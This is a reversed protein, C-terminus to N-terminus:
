VSKAKELRNKVLECLSWYVENREDKSLRLADFFVEDLAKRDPLPKPTQSRIKRPNVGLEEFISLVKRQGLKKLLGTTKDQSIQSEQILQIYKYDPGYTTLIGEAQNVRGMIEIQFFFWTSNLQAKGIEDSGKFKGYFFNDSCYTEISTVPTWFRKDWFRFIIFDVKEGKLSYWYPSNSKVTTIRNVRNKEGWKIYSLAGSGELSEKSEDCFFIRNAENIFIKELQRSSNIVPKIYKNEIKFKSIIDDELYFFSVAGTTIGRKITLAKSFPTLENSHQSVIKWYIDPARLFKAGWKNGGYGGVSMDSNDILQQRTDSPYEWGDRLLEYQTAPFVRLDPNSIVKLSNEVTLLNKINIVEEFPKKFMVFKVREGSYTNEKESPAGALLIITNVDASEFSRKAQNDFIAYVPTHELLFKQLDKGYGVDLWSNSTIYCLTGLTNLLSFGHFYFYIYLDSKKDLKKIWPYKNKVSEILKDKYDRKNATTIKEKPLVPDAIKEQRVYPPNGIVIDFGAEDPDSFIEVFDIDWIFPKRQKLDQRLARLLEIEGQKEEISKKNAEEIFNKQNDEKEMGPLQLNQQKGNNELTMVEKKLQLVREDIIMQFILQEEQKLLDESRYFKSSRNNYFYDYKAQKLATIKRKVVPNLGKRGLESLNVEGIEQVLSDGPRIKFSLNPLLPSTKREELPIDAEVILQLWLRLECVHVAWEMVDVGYLSRGIIQKKIDFDDINRGVEKYVLKYLSTLIQLMGVLFSGSGVAPDIVTLGDLQEEFMEPWVATIKLRDIAKQEEEESKAFILKYIDEKAPTAGLHKYFYEVLSSRCMFDIESRPTYFIGADGREDSTESLNVLSEYVKGIMEPDVAVEKELPLDERITFNYRNFFNFILSLDKDAVKLPLEDIKQKTFLGGNLFPALQLSSNTGKSFYDKPFFKNNFAEFFLVSLWNEYFTDKKNDGNTYAEWFEKLFKDSKGIWRKKSIFYLFMIRNLLQQTFEHAVKANKVQKLYNSRLDFFVEKYEAFFKKTVREVSMANKIVEYIAKSDATPEELIFNSIIEKDTHYPNDKDVILKTLKRKFEGPGERIKEVLTFTFTKFDPTFIIFPFDVERLIKEPINRIAEKNDEKLKFLLIQFRRNYNAVAFISEILKAEKTPLNYISPKTKLGTDLVKYGLSGFLQYVKEPTDMQPIFEDLNVQNKM